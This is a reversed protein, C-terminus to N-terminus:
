DTGKSNNRVEGKILKEWWGKKGRGGGADLFQWKRCYCGM